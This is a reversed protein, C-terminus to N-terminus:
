LEVEGRICTVTDGGVWFADGRPRRPRPRRPRARTGQAAVYRPPRAARRRDAMRRPRRQPQRHGSGRAASRRGVFRACRSRASAAAGSARRRRRGRRLGSCAGRLRARARARTPPSDLLLALWSPGNDLWQAARSAAASAHRLAAVRSAAADASSRAAARLPPAAFALAARRRAPHAGPRRRVAARGRGAAAAPRRARALRPLQRADSPRRVAARRGAHLHARPLRRGPRDPPLLFTTESLNTWRAFAQMRADDLADAGHVVALPNGRLATATFVDVQTFAFRSVRMEARRQAEPRRRAGRATACRTPSRAVGREILTPASPSSRCACRTRLAAGAFFPAGPVFAVGREVAKPLLAERRRGDPLEVWFFM